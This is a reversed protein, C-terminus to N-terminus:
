QLLEQAPYMPMLRQLRRLAAAKEAEAKQIASLALEKTTYTEANAPGPTLGDIIRDMRTVEIQNEHIEREYDKIEMELRDIVMQLLLEQKAEEIFLRSDEIAARFAASDVMHDRSHEELIKVLRGVDESNRAIMPAFSAQTQTIRDISQLFYYDPALTISAVMAALTLILSLRGVTIVFNM